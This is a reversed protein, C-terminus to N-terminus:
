ESNNRPEYNLIDFKRLWVYINNTTFNNAAFTM